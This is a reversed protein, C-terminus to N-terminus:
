LVLLAAAVLLSIGLITRVRSASADFTFTWGPENGPIARALPVAARGAGFGFGALVADATPLFFLACLAIAHPLVSTMFTRLGTGMEFGFQLAGYTPGRLQM